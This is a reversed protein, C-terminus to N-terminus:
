VRRWDRVCQRPRCLPLVVASQSRRWEATEPADPSLFAVIDKTASSYLFTMERGDYDLVVVTRSNTVRRAYKVDGKTVRRILTQRLHRNVDLGFRQRACDKVDHRRARFPVQRGPTM